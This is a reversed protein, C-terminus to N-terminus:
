QGKLAFVKKVEFLSEVSINSNKLSETTKGEYETHKATNLM